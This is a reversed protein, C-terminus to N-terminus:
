EAASSHAPRHKPRRYKINPSIRWEENARDPKAILSSALQRLEQRALVHSLTPRVGLLPKELPDFATLGKPFLQRYVTREAIGSVMRFGLEHGAEELPVRITRENRTDITSFIRNPILWWAIPRSTVLGRAERARRIAASYPSRAAENTAEPSPVIADLDLFSDNVPSIVTDALAHAYLNSNTLTSPTDIIVFDHDPEAAAIAGSIFNIQVSNSENARTSRPARTLRHHTPTDLDLEKEHAFGRRNEIYQSLTEREFDLDICAVRRGAKILGVALNMSLTTKGSGAKLNGLVIIHPRLPPTVHAM